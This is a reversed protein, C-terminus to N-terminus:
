HLRRVLWVSRGSCRWDQPQFAIEVLGLAEFLMRYGGPALSAHYLTEPVGADRAPETNFLLVGGPALWEAIRELMIAQDSQHLHYFSDWALVGDFARTARADRMDAHLWTERPFRIRALTIMARSLDIGTVHLHHDILYRDIPEGAGCGLDLVSAGRPLPHRFRDLWFREEFKTRRARDFAHAHREYHEAIGPM